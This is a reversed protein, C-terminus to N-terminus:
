FVEELHHPEQPPRRYLELTVISEVAHRTSCMDRREAVRRVGIENGLTSIIKPVVEKVSALPLEFQFTRAEVPKGGLQAVFAALVNADDVM